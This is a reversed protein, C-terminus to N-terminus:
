GHIEVGQEQWRVVLQYILGVGAFLAGAFLLALLDAFGLPVIKFVPALPTYMLLAQLCLSLLGASWVWRNAFFPVQYSNRIIFTLIVEYLVVFNFVMTQAHVLDAESESTGGYQHFILLALLSGVTGLVGLLTLKSTPLMGEKSPKPKRQMIDTGYPDISYALAPAGDTVMNIWLLLIATLPLNMGFLAACFIILVEGLNGSLLLMISKQINDYIGRGEEIANVIHTFSDDLLVLDSAEKAVETGSGVAVGINAKKLAPADNVGDGTMAVTKGMQQLADIIQQKHEPAVRSFINVDQQLATQLALLDMGALEEGSLCKGEIGIEKGIAKATEDYDGTIMIVRIGAQRTKRISEVVDPRPPDIMAQLGIFTLEQECLQNGTRRAFGLVRLAQSAYRANQQVITQRWADTLPEERGAVLINSCRALLQNLAGKCYSVESGEEGVLVTMLKRESSFPLETRRSRMDTVGVKAASTLLAAETPDGTVQWYGQGQHLSANNCLQGCAFLEEVVAGNVDGEPVYGTGGLTVEGAATWGYRVTMQNATLTGTKDTCIVDCSGLTEVSSLNRVLAKKDLLRKVGVSLAITVVAPLATPVAAVALSIAILILALFSESSFGNAFYDKYFFLAFVILCITIIVYSLKRGFQDLRRQLPTQLEEAEKVLETIKGLETQMGTAVVLARSNGTVLTTASYLMNRRDGLPVVQNLTAASKEVPVSEGTLASEEVKLQVAEIIRLDAPVRDGSKLQVVDGPVLESAEIVQPYGNRLVTAQVTSIKKLAELSKHASLEQYFGIVANALLIILIVISDVYEGILVSFVVAFLLIYIIFSRFQSIFILLPNLRTKTELRNPGYKLLRREAEDASLGHSGTELQQVLDDLQTQYYDM